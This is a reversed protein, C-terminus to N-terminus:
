YSKENIALELHELHQELKQILARCQEAKKCLKLV